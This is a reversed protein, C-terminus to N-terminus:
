FKLKVEMAMYLLKESDKYLFKIRCCIEQCCSVEVIKICAEVRYAINCAQLLVVAHIIRRLSEALRLYLKNKKEVVAEMAGYCNIYSIDGHLSLYWKLSM